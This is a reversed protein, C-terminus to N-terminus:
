RTAGIMKLTKGPLVDLVPQRITSQRVIEIARYGRQDAQAAYGSAAIVL